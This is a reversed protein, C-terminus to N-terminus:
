GGGRPRSGSELKKLLKSLNTETWGEPPGESNTDNMLERNLGNNNV